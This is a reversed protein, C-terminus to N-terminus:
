HCKIPHDKDVKGFMNTTIQYEYGTNHGCDILIYWCICIIYNFATFVNNTARIEKYKHEQLRRNTVSVRLLTCNYIHSKIRSHAYTPINQNTYTTSRSSPEQLHFQYKAGFTGLLVVLWLRAANWVDAKFRHAAHM